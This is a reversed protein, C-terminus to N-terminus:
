RARHLAPLVVGDIWAVLFERSFPRRQILSRYAALSPLVQSITEIDASRSIEGREVARQMLARHADAWPTVLADNIVDALGDQASIMSLLGAMVKMRQESEARSQPKFLGLLDGRLTGTDPLKDFPVQSHKMRAVADLVMQEKSQWRRYVTAKGAKARAAVMDVTMREYGLEAMVELAADLIEGDRAPDRKRGLRTPEKTSSRKDM